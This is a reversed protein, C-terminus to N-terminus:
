NNLVLGFYRIIQEAIDPAKDDFTIVLSGYCKMQPLTKNEKQILKANLLLGFYQLQNARFDALGLKVDYM